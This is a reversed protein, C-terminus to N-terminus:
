SGGPNICGTPLYASPIHTNFSFSQTDTTCFWSIPTSATAPTFANFEITPTTGGTWGPLQSSDLRLFVCINGQYSVGAGYCANPPGLLGLATIFDSNFSSSTLNLDALSTPWSQYKNYYLEVQQKVSELLSLASSIKTRSLYKTYAPIAIVALVGIIAIVVLLEILSFGKKNLKLM